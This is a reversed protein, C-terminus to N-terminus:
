KGRNFLSGNASDTGKHGNHFEGMTVNAGFSINAADELVGFKAFYERVQRFIAFKDDDGALEVGRALHRGSFKLPGFNFASETQELLSSKRWPLVDFNRVRIQFGPGFLPIKHIM